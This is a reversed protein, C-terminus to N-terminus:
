QLNHNIHCVLFCSYVYLFRARASKCHKVTFEVRTFEKAAMLAQAAMLAAEDQAEWETEQAHIDLSHSLLHAQNGPTLSIGLAATLAPSPDAFSLSPRPSRSRAPTSTSFTAFAESILTDRKNSPIAYYLESSRLINQLEALWISTSFFFPFVM